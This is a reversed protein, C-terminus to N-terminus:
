VNEAATLVPLLNYFQFIYGIHRSRWAALEDESLRSLETGAVELDFDGTGLERTRPYDRSSPVPSKSKAM